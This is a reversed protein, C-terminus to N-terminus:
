ARPRQYTVIHAPAAFEVSGTATVFPALETRAEELLREYQEDDILDALTWGRIDTHVWSDVSPFRATGPVTEIESGPLAARDFLEALEAVDGLAFPARLANAAEDGLLPQVLDVMAAYGPTADLSAWVAVSVRGGPRCVRALERLAEVRDEFFMLGFQSVAADFSRDDFPLAEARGLHWEVEPATTEAVALMLENVDLGVVTGGPMVRDLAARAAVGTGCAVDLVRQGAAVGAASVVRDGWEAFLAPVFFQEYIDAASGRVQGREADSSL